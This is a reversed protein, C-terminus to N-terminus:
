TGTLSSHIVGSSLCWAELAAKRNSASASGRWANMADTFGTSLSLVGPQYLLLDAVQQNAGLTARSVVDCQGNKIMLTRFSLIHNTAPPTRLEIVITMIETDEDPHVRGIVIRTGNPIVYPTTLTIPM